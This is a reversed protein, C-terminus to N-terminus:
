LLVMFGGYFTGRFHLASEAFEKIYRWCIFYESGVVPSKSSM